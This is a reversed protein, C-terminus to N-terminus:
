SIISCALTAKSILLSFCFRIKNAQNTNKLKQDINISKQNTIYEEAEQIAEFEISKKISDQMRNEEKATITIQQEM